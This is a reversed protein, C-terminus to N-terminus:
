FLLAIGIECDAIDAGGCAHRIPCEEIVEFCLVFKQDIIIKLLKSLESLLVAKIISDGVPWEVLTYTDEIIIPAIIHNIHPKVEAAVIIIGLVVREIVAAPM